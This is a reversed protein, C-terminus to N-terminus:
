LCFLVRVGDSLGFGTGDVHAPDRFVWQYWHSMGVMAMDIPVEVAGAGVKDFRIPGAVRLTPLQLCLTGGMFPIDDAGVVSSLLYGFAKPIGDHISVSFTGASERPEGVVGIRPISGTSTQKATCYFDIDCSVVSITVLAENSETGDNDKVTYIFEDTGAFFNNPTYTAMGAADVDVTGNLPLVKVDVSTPDLTGDPDNDNFLLDIVVAEEKNTMSDDRMAIPAINVNLSLDGTQGGPNTISLSVAGGPMGEPTEFSLSQHDAAVSINEVPIGEISGFIWTSGGRPVFGSLPGATLTVVQGGGPDLTTPDATFSLGNTLPNSFDVTALFSDDPNHYVSDEIQLMDTTGWWNHTAPFVLGGYSYGSHGLRISENNQITNYGGASSDGFNLNLVSATVASDHEYLVHIGYDDNAYITNGILTCDIDIVGGLNDDEIDLYLGEEDNFSISNYYIDVDLDILQGTNNGQKFSIAAATSYNAEIDNANMAFTGRLENGSGDVRLRIDVLESSGAEFVNDEIITTLNLVNNASGGAEFSGYLGPYYLGTMTNGRCTFDLDGVASTGELEFSFALATSSCGVFLNNEITWSADITSAYCYLGVADYYANHFENDSVTCDVMATDNVQIYVGTSSNITLENDTITITKHTPAAGSCDVLAALYCKNGSMVLTDPIGTTVLGTQTTTFRNNLVRIDGGTAAASSTIADSTGDFTLGQVTTTGTGLQTFSMAPTGSGSYDIIATGDGPGRLDLGSVMSIPFVEGLIADYTGPAAHLVDGAVLTASTTAQTITLWPSGQSGDGGLSGNVADVYFDGALLAPTTGGLAMLFAPAFLAKQGLRSPWGQNLSQWTM